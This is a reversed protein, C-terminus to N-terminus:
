PLIQRRIMTALMTTCLTQQGSSDVMFVDGQCVTISRGPKIVHGHAIAKVGQAPSLFNVKFEITLVDSQLPMLTLAAYGCASDVVTTLAGAHIFQHQQTLENRFPLEITISGAAVHTLTAGLYNMFGQQAFNERVAQIFSANQVQFQSM